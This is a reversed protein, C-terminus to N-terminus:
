LPVCYNIILIKNDLLEAKKLDLYKHFEIQNKQIDEGYIELRRNLENANKSVESNKDWSMLIYSCNEAVKENYLELSIPPNLQILDFEFQKLKYLKNVPGFNLFESIRISDFDDLSVTIEYDQTTFDVNKNGISVTSIFSYINISDKKIYSKFAEDFHDYQNYDEYSYHYFYGNITDSNKSILELYFIYGNGEDAFLNGSLLILFIVIIFRM